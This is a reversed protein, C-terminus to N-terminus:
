GLVDNELKILVSGQNVISGVSIYIDSIIVTSKPFVKYQNENGIMGFAYISQTM